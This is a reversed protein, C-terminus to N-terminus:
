QCDNTHKQNFNRVRDSSNRFTYSLHQNRKQDQTQNQM